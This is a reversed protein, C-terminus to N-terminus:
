GSSAVLSNLVWGVVRKLIIALVGSWIHMPEWCWLLACDTLLRRGSEKYVTGNPLVAAADCVSRRETGIHACPGRCM